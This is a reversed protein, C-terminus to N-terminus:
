QQNESSSKCSSTRVSIRQGDSSVEVAGHLDTRYIRAGIKGYKELVEQDPLGYRNGEGVTIVVIRPAVSRLITTSSSSNSGHHPSKLVQSKIENVNELIEREADIGIDGALLFSTQGYSIRLVLSQDNHVTQVYPNDKKPHLVEIKVDGERQTHHRFFRKQPISPPILKKFEAYSRSNLPILSEWYEGIKFNRAIAKLGNIHDPHAHTLILYDIKKIGKDWLFPSVVSEGIDFTEEPIGGGDILMKKEGPFEALISDGQGVDIFTLKLNRSTSPFPYSIIVSVFLLFCLLVILKQRKIRPPLLLLYLFLFYGIITILHPTPIRYSIFSLPDFLGSVSTLMNILFEIGKALLQALHSNVFSLPLFIYGSAMILGLLPLAAFNLVLSSFTVRNFSSVVFPLVGLQATLSIAFIESIRFPLRPLYKIIRSFFLIISITAAFTLQFGLSFLSFPNIFLLFFASMSITNILNVDRWILKGILFALTMITARMVSPRGEVLFVYFGLFFILVLFSTRAPIRFLRFVSFFLFSIIAIHAGSIAFLHYLGAKQLSRTISLPIRGREGLLLAELVAGQPSLSDDKPSSFHEEIRQQLKQRINSILRLPLYKKGDEIKEALLPSKTSARNHIHQTKLYMDLSSDKFNRFGKYSLLHASVKVKDHIFVNLKSPFESSHPITVRLNGRIKEEKNQYAVKEVKLFLYDRDHGRSPSKYITGYYDAYDTHKMNHLSNQEFRKNQYAFLSSGLLFTTLLIFLLSLNEKRLL